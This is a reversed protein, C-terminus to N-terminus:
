YEIMFIEQLLSKKHRITEKAIKEEQAARIEPSSLCPPEPSKVIEVLRSGRMDERIRLKAAMAPPPVSPVGANFPSAIERDM